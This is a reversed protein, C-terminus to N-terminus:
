AVMMFDDASLDLKKDLKAVKVADNGGKGDNDYRLWGSKKDYLIRDKGSDAKKGTDFYKDQLDGAKGTKKFVSKDLVITDVGVEFDLM